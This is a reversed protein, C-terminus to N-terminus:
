LSKLYAATGHQHHYLAWDLPTSQFLTDRLDRKASREVLLRVVDLHGALAAQHLPTSHSHLGQPNYRNPDEGADLLLRLADAHGNQAALALARHREAADAAPLLLAVHSTLGLGAALDLRDVPAGRRVLTQATDLYGFALATSLPSPGKPDGPPTVHAGHDLLLETLAVQLGAKAPHSSSVLLSLTSCPGGYFGALSNPDAGATLLARTIEVANPPTMQRYGECGNAGVYHLLTARTEHPDFHTIRTSRAHVLDPHRELLKQLQPLDGHIVAEVAAEFRHVASTPINATAAYIDLAPWDRFDYARALALQADELTFPAARLEDVTLKKELWPIQDDLFRPHTRHLLQLTPEDGAQHGALLAEAQQQYAALPADFPLHEFPM